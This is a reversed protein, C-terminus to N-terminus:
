VIILNDNSNLLIKIFQDLMENSLMLDIYIQNENCLLRRSKYIGFKVEDIKSSVLLEKIFSIEEQFNENFHNFKEESISLKKPDIELEIHTNQYIKRKSYLFNDLKEKRLSLKFKERSELLNFSVPIIM